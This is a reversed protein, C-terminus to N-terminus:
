LAISWGKSRLVSVQDLADVGPSANGRLNVTVGGRNVSTYNIFLDNIIANVAQQTLLNSSLDLYRLRYNTTLSGVTYNTFKNGYLILFFLSPCQSFDPISGSLQNNHAYFYTLNSLNTFKPLSTFQNNNLYLYTLSFLNKFAPISGSFNNFSLDTYFIRPNSALNPMTGTFKNNNMILYTLSPCSGLNPISGTTRGNSNYIIYFIKPTYSFANPHIPSTLLNGSSLFMYQLNPAQEFTKEPIVFSVDGNPDGGTLSTARLDLYSLNLNTFKPMAGTLPSAYFDLSNLSNCGDFKYNGGSFISGINSNYSASFSVLSQRGSLSPCPLRTTSINIARIKNNTPSIAFTSDTLNRNNFLSLSVLNSLEKINYSSGSSPGITRFDNNSVDYSECTDAVNPLNGSPDNRDPYFYPRNSGSALNLVRLQTFRNGISNADLSGFFSQGLYLETAGAPIKSLIATNLRRENPNTALYFPNAILSVIKINPSFINFDPFDKLNNFALNLSSLNPLTTQPLFSIGASNITLTSINAPNYYFQILRSRSSTSRYSITSSTSGQNSFRVFSNPNGVDVIKWSPPINNVLSTLTVNATLDKFFGTFVVPIGKMAYLTVPKGGITCNIKHTPLESAFEKSEPTLTTKLRLQNPDTPTGFQLSGDTIIGVRAGYSIPSTDVVPSANSSWASVRSTSIDAIKVTASPGTGDVYRYRVSSGSLAGNIGLNGFLNSDTGAKTKLISYYLSSEQYYRDLTKYIPSTLRSLSIWDGRTAGADSSGRIINLDNPPLNLANLAIDKDEVESLNSLVNLGFLRTNRIAM